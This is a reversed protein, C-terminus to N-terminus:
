LTANMDDGQSIRAEDTSYQSISGTRSCFNKFSKPSKSLRKFNLGDYRVISTEDCDMLFGRCLQLTTSQLGGPLLIPQLSANPPFVENGLTSLHSGPEFAIRSLKDCFEFCNDCIAQISSPLCVFELASCRRFAKPGLISVKSVSEFSLNVLNVCFGFCEDSITEVAAPIRIQRLSRCDAFALKGLRSLRSGDEFSVSVLSDCHFFCDDSITEISSPIYISKLLVCKEFAGAGLISIHSGPEFAVNELNPSDHFCSDCITMTLNPICISEISLKSAPLWSSLRGLCPLGVVLGSLCALHRPFSGTASPFRYYHPASETSADPRGIADLHFISQKM